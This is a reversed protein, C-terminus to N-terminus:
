KTCKKPSKVIADSRNHESDFCFISNLLIKLYKDLADPQVRESDFYLVRNLLIKATNM